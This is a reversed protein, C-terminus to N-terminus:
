LLHEIGEAAEHARGFRSWAWTLADGDRHGLDTVRGLMLTHDGGDYTRWPACQMWALPDALRPVPADLSWRPSVDVPDSAFYRALKLQEAGLVNVTFPRGVLQDHCRAKLAISALILPPDASVSTFSNVTLGRPGDDGPFTVVTVGTVFRSMSARLAGPGPPAVADPM